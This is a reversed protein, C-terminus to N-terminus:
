RLVIDFGDLSMEGDPEIHEVSTVRAPRPGEAILKEFEALADPSGAAHVEVSGSPLNRVHGSLGLGDAVTRTWWRFGVGQVRGHVRYACLRLDGSRSESM